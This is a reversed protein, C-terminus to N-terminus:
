KRYDILSLIKKNKILYINITLIKFYQRRRFYKVLYINSVPHLSVM